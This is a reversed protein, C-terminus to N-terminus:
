DLLTNNAHAYFFGFSGHEIDKLVFGFALNVEPSCKLNNFFHHLEENVITEYLTEIACNFVKHRARELESDMLSHQFSGLEESLRHDEFDGM